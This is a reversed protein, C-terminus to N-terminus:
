LYLCRLYMIRCKIHFASSRGDTRLRIKRTPSFYKFLVRFPGDLLRPSLWLSGFCLEGKAPSHVPPRTWRGRPCQAARLLVAQGPEGELIMARSDVPHPPDNKLNHARGTINRSIYPVNGSIESPHRPTLAYLRAPFSLEASTSQTATKSWYPAGTGM